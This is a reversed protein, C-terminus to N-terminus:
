AQGPTPPEDTEQGFVLVHGSPDLMEFEKMGYFRVVLESAAHGQNLISARLAEVDEPYFYFCVQPYRGDVKVPAPAQHPSALMLQITGHNLSAWGSPGVDDMRNTLRFGLVDSYFRISKQVDDCILMTVLDKLKQSM